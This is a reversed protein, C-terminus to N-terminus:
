EALRFEYPNSPSVKAVTHLVRITQGGELAKKKMTERVDARDLPPIRVAFFPWLTESRYEQHVIPFSSIPDGSYDSAYRFVFQESDKYLYGVVVSNGDMQRRIELMEKATSDHSAHVLGVGWEKVYDFLSM